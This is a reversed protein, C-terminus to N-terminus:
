STGGLFSRVDRELADMDVPESVWRVGPVKRYWTRSRKTYAVHEHLMVERIQELSKEGLVYAIVHRYGHAVFGRAERPVGADLLARVEEIWGGALMRELRTELRQKLAERDLDIGITLCRYRQESFEHQARARSIPQGTQEFYELARVIRQRDASAIGAAAESDVEVLRAHLAEAGRAQLEAELRARIEADPPPAEFLGHLLAKLWLGTGGVLMPVRDRSAVEAIVPEALAVWRAADMGDAPEVVDFLHHPARAREGPTPKATGIDLHRYVQASDLCLIEGGIRAALDLALDTKGTGTPGIVAVLAPRESLNPSVM